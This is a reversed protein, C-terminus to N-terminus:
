EQSTKNVYSCVMIADNNNNNGHTLQVWLYEARSYQVESDGGLWLKATM